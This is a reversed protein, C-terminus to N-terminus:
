LYPRINPRKERQSKQPNYSSCFSDLSLIIGWLCSSDQYWKISPLVRDDTLYSLKIPYLDRHQHDLARLSRIRAIVLGSSQQNDHSVRTVEGHLKDRCVCWSNLCFCSSCLLFQMSLSTPDWLGIFSSVARQCIHDLFFGFGLTTPAAMLIPTIPM